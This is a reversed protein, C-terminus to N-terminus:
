VVKDFYNSNFTTEPFGELVVAMTLPGDESGSLAPTMKRVTYTEGVETGGASDGIRIVNDGPEFTKM